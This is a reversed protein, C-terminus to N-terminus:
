RRLRRPADGRRRPAHDPARDDVRAVVLGDLDHHVAHIACPQERVADSVEHRVSAALLGLFIRVQRNERYYDVGLPLAVVIQSGLGAFLASILELASSVLDLSPLDYEVGEAEAEALAMEHADLIERTIIVARTFIAPAYSHMLTGLSRCFSQLCEISVILVTEDPGSEEYFPMLLSLFATQFESNMGNSPNIIDNAFTEVVVSLLDILLLKNKQGCTSFAQYM